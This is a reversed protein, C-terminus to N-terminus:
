RCLRPAGEQRTGVRAGQSATQEWPHVCFRTCLASDESDGAFMQFSEM